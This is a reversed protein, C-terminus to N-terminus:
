MAEGGKSKRNVMTKNKRERIVKNAVKRVFPEFNQPFDHTEMFRVLNLNEIGVEEIYIILEYHLMFENAKRESRLHFHLKHYIVDDDMDEAAHGLEHLLLMRETIPGLNPNYMIVKVDPSYYALKIDLPVLKVELADAIEQVVRNVTRSM